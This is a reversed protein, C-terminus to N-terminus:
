KGHRKGIERMEKIYEELIGAGAVLRMPNGRAALERHSEEISCWPCKKVGPEIPERCDSCTNPVAKLQGAEFTYVTGESNAFYPETNSRGIKMQFNNCSCKEAIQAAASLTDPSAGTGSIIATVCEYPFSFILLGSSEDIYEPPLILRREQEYSWCAMKTYYAASMVAQWLFYTHRPKGTGFARQLHDQIYKHPHEQYDVDGFGIEPFHEQIKEEDVEIVLGRHNHGYHAWMPVVSPSKSFCTTAKQPIADVTESYFALLEPSLNFDVTLFLEYPDNFDKPYSCKFRCKGEESFAKELIDPGVYKYTKKSM